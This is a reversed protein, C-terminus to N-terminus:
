RIGSKREREAIRRMAERHMMKIQYIQSHPYWFLFDCFDKTFELDEISTEGFEIGLGKLDEKRDESLYVGLSNKIRNMDEWFDEGAYKYSEWFDRKLLNYRSISDPIFINGFNKYVKLDEEANKASEIFGIFGTFVGDIKKQVESRCDIASIKDPIFWNNQKINGLIESLDTPALFPHEIEPTIESEIM